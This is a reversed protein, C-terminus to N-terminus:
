SPVTTSSLFSLTRLIARPARVVSGAIQLVRSSWGGEQSQRILREKLENLEMLQGNYISEIRHLAAEKDALQNELVNSRLSLAKGTEISSRLQKELKMREDERVKLQKAYQQNQEQASDVLAVHAAM